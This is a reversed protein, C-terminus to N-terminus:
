EREATEVASAFVVLACREKAECPGTLHLYQPSQEGLQMLVEGQLGDTKIEANAGSVLALKEGTGVAFDPFDGVYIGFRADQWEVQYLDFDAPQQHGVIEADTPLCFADLCSQPEEASCGSLLLLSLLVARM